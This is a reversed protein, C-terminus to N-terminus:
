HFAERHPYFILGKLFPCQNRISISRPISNHCCIQSLHIVPYKLCAAGKGQGGNDVANKTSCHCIKSFSKLLGCKNHSIRLHHVATFHCLYYIFYTGLSSQMSHMEHAVLIIEKLHRHTVLPVNSHATRRYCHFALKPWFRVRAHARAVFRFQQM